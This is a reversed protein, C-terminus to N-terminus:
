GIKVERVHFSAVLDDFFVEEITDCKLGLSETELRFDRYLKGFKFGSDVFHRDGVRSPVVTFAFFDPPLIAYGCYKMDNPEFEEFLQPREM